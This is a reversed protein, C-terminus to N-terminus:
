TSQLLCKTALRMARLKVSLASHGLGTAALGPFPSWKVLRLCFVKDFALSLVTCPLSLFYRQSPALKWLLVTHPKLTRLAGLMSPKELTPTVVKFSIPFADWENKIKLEKLGCNSKNLIVVMVM